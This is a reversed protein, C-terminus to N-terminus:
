KESFMGHFGAGYGVKWTEDMGTKGACERNWLVAFGSMENTKFQGSLSLVAQGSNMGGFGNQSRFEYCVAGDNM